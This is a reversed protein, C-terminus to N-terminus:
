LELLGAIINRQIDSTGVYIIGGLSDRLDREVESESLYGYAGHIRLANMSNAVFNESITLKAIASAMTIPQNTDILSACQYLLLRSTELRVRMDAIKHSVAQYKSIPQDGQKRGKAYAITAELQRRMAGVHSGFGLCREREVSKNFISAGAGVKGLINEEPVFVNEFMISGLVTTRLGMTEAPASAQIGESDGDVIFATIGWSGLDPNTTAYVLIVDAIPALGVYAKKGNLVYGGNVKEAHTQMGFVHSGYDPETVGHAGFKTGEILPKLYREKQEDNAFQSLTSQVSWMQGNVALLLGNDHCAYGLAETAVMSTVMDYDTGGYATEFSYGLIGKQAIARWNEHSFVGQKDAEVTNELDLSTGVFAVINDWLAQQEDTFHLNM